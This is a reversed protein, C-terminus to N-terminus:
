LLQVPLWKVSLPLAMRGLASRLLKSTRERIATIAKSTLDFPQKEELRKSVVRTAL